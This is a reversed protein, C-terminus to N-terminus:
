FVVCCDGAHEMHWGGGGGGFEKDDYVGKGQPAYQEYHSYVLIM